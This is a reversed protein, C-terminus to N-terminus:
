DLDVWYEDKPNIEIVPIPEFTSEDFPPMDPEAAGLAALHAKAKDLGWHYAYPPGDCWAARYAETPAAIAAPKDDEALEIDALVNYADAQHLPYRGREAAEWVDYLSDRAEAPANRM